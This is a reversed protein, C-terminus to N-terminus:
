YNKLIFGATNKHLLYQKKKKKMWECLHKCQPLLFMSSLSHLCLEPKNVPPHGFPQRLRSYSTHWQSTFTLACCRLETYGGCSYVAASVEVTSYQIHGLGEERHIYPSNPTNPLFRWRQLEVINTQGWWPLAVIVANGHIQQCIFRVATPSVRIDVWHSQLAWGGRQVFLILTLIFLMIVASM